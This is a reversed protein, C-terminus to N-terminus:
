QVKTSRLRKWLKGGSNGRWSSATRRWNRVGIKTLEEEVSELWRLKSKGLREIDEPRLLTIM